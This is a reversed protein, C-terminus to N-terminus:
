LMIQPLATSNLRENGPAPRPFTEPDVGEPGVAKPGVGQPSASRLHALSFFASDATPKEVPNQAEQGSRRTICRKTINSRHPNTLFAHLNRNESAIVFRGSAGTM